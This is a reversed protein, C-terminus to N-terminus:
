NTLIQNNHIVKELVSGVDRFDSELFSIFRPYLTHGAMLTEQDQNYLILIIRMNHLLCEMQIVENLELRNETVM